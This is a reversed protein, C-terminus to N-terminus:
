MDGVLNLQKGNCKKLFSSFICKSNRVDINNIM